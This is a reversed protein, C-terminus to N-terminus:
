RKRRVRAAGALVGLGLLMLATEAPEPVSVVGDASDIWGAAWITLYDTSPFYSGFQTITETLSLTGSYTATGDALVV